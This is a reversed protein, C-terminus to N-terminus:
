NGRYRFRHGRRRHPCGSSRHRARSRSAPIPVTATRCPRWPVTGRRHPARVAAPTRQMVIREVLASAHPNQQEACVALHPMLQTATEGRKTLHDCRRAAAHQFVTRRAFDGIEVRRLRQRGQDFPDRGINDDVSRGVRSDVAGLGIAIGGEAGIGFRRLADGFGAGRAIRQQHMVGRIVHEIASAGSRIARVIGSRRQAHVAFAFKRAFLRDLGAARPM